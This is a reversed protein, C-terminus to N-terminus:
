PNSNVYSMLNNGTTSLLAHPVNLGLKGSAFCINRDFSPM